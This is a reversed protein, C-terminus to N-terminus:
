TIELNKKLYIKNIFKKIKPGLIEYSYNKEAYKKGNM